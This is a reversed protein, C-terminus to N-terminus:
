QTREKNRSTFVRQHKRDILALKARDTGAGQVFCAFIADADFRSACVTFEFTKALLRQFTYVFMPSGGAIRTVFIYRWTIGAFAREFVIFAASLFVFYTGTGLWVDTFTTGPFCITRWAGIVSNAFVTRTGEIANTTGVYSIM